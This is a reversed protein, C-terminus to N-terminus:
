YASQYIALADSEHVHKPNNVLIRKQLMCSKALSPLMDEKVGVSKLTMPLGLSGILDEIYSILKHAIHINSGKRGEEGPIIYPALEAYLDYAVDINFRMVHPLVLSNSLGHPIQYHSGLPYALAHIAAVPSNSFAQGALMAGYLMGSRAGVDKGNDVAATINQSILKLSERALMDSYPNKKHISTYAEIAHVMADIGTAATVHPPLGVTLEADLVAVDPLIVPSVIGKKESESVKVISVATVESGTGATTPIQILPLRGTTINDVGYMSEINQNGTALVSVLKAVDMSSGGGLGVVGDIKTNKACTVAAEVVRVSPDSEVEHFFEYPIEESELSEVAGSYLGLSVIGPDSVLLPKSIGLSKCIKALERVGGVKNVISKATTFEFTKM